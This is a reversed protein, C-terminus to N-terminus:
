LCFINEGDCFSTYKGSTYLTEKNLILLHLDGDMNLRKILQKIEYETFLSPRNFTLSLFKGYCRQGKNDLDAVKMLANVDKNEKFITIEYQYKNNGLNWRVPM